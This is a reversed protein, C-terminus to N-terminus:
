KKAPTTSAAPTITQGKKMFRITLTGYDKAPDVETADFTQGPHLCIRISYSLGAFKGPFDKVQLSYTYYNYLDNKTCAPCERSNWKEKFPVNNFAYSFALSNMPDKLDWCYNASEPPFKWDAKVQINKVVNRVEDISGSISISHQGAIYRINTYPPSQAFFDSKYNVKCSISFANGDWKVKEPTCQASTVNANDLSPPDPVKVKPDVYKAKGYVQLLVEADESGVPSDKIVQKKEEVKPSITTEAEAYQLDPKTSAAIVQLKLHCPLNGPKVKIEDTMKNGGAPITGLKQSDNWSALTCGSVTLKIEADTLNVDGKNAIKGKVLIYEAPQTTEISPNIATISARWLTAVSQISKNVAPAPKDFYDDINKSTEVASAIALLKAQEAQANWPATFNKAPAANKWDTSYGAPAEGAPNITTEWAIHSSTESMAYETDGNYYWPDFWDENSKTLFRTVETNFNNSVFKVPQLYGLKVSGKVNDELYISGQHKANQEDYIAQITARDTGNIHYPCFMDALFHAGWAAAKPLPEKKGTTGGEALYKFYKAVAAPGGGKNDSSIKPNYYHESFKSSGKSDPGNGSLVDYDVGLGIYGAGTWQYRVWTVGENNLIDELSPFKQPDFAPDASLKKYAEQCIYQHTKAPALSGWAHIEKPLFIILLFICTIFHINKVADATFHKKM